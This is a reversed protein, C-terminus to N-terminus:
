PAFFWGGPGACGAGSSARAGLGGPACSPSVGFGPCGWISAVPYLRQERSSSQKGAFHTVRRQEELLETLLAAVQSASIGWLLPQPAVAGRQWEESADGGVALEGLHRRTAEREEDGQGLEGGSM